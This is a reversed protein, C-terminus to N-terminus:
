RSWPDRTLLRDFDRPALRRTGQIRRRSRLWGPLAVAADGLARLHLGLRGTRASLVLGGLQHHLIGPLHRLLVSAPFDKVVVAVHNRRLLGYVVPNGTGGTTASGMHYAVASPVYVCRLGALQARLGWDVDEYYARFTEDFPGVLGFADRRYLAAGATPAVVSEPRDFQGSDEEGQGRSRATGRTTILDGAGDLEARRHYNRLKCAASAADPTQILARVMESTWDPELELDSNLLAVLPTTSADVALNLAASVGVNVPNAVVRVRPWERALYALSDDTSADDVVVIELAEYTQAVLSPLVVELLRRGCYNLVVATVGPETSV